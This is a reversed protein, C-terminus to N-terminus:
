ESYTEALKLELAAREEPSNVNLFSDPEDAFDSIALRHRAFWRDIKREGAGLYGRLSPLLDRRMLAFVPHMREGDHAVSIEADENLLTTYLREALDGAVLPSDCPVTLVYPTNANQLATAMGALPGSYDGIIDPVVPYGFKAYEDISRNANIMVAGVQRHLVELVHAVMPKDALTALGKDVGGMRQGRGGALVVGTVDTRPYSLPKPNMATM